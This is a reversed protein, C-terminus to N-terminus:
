PLIYYKVNNKELIGRIKRIREYRRANMKSYRYLNKVILLPSCDLSLPIDKDYGVPTPLGLDTKIQILTKYYECLAEKNVLMFKSYREMQELIEPPTKDMDSTCLRDDGIRKLEEIKIVNGDVAVLDFRIMTSHGSESDSHEFESDIYRRVNDIRLRGQIRKETIGEGDGEKVYFKIANGKLSKLKNKDELLDVCSGYTTDSGEGSIYKTHCKATIRGTRAKFELEAIRAGYYYVHIKNGKRIEIYIEPDGILTHWWTPPNNRLEKFLPADPNLMSTPDMKNINGM